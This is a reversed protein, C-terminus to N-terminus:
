ARNIRGHQNRPARDRHAPLRARPPSSEARSVSAILWGEHKPKGDPGINEDLRSHTMASASNEHAHSEPSGRVVDVPPVVPPPDAPVIPTPPPAPIPPPLPPIPAMPPATPPRPPAAPVPEPPWPPVTPPQPTHGAPDTQRSPPQRGHAAHGVQKWHTPPRPPLPVPPVTPAAPAPPDAPLVPRPPEVPPLLPAAPPPAPAPPVPPVPAPAPPVLKEHEEDTDQVSPVWYQEEKRPPAPALPM